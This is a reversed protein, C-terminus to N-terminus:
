DQDPIFVGRVIRAGSQIAGSEKIDREAVRRHWYCELRHDVTMMGKGDYIAYCVVSKLKRKAM